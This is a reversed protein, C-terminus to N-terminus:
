SAPHLSHTCQQLTLLNLIPLSAVMVGMRMVAIVAVIAAAVVVVVVVIIVVLVVVAM